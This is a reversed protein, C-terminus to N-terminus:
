QSLLLAGTRWEKDGRKQPCEEENAHAFINKITIGGTTIITKCTGIKFNSNLMNKYSGYFCQKVTGSSGLIQNGDFLISTVTTAKYSGYQAGEGGIFGAVVGILGNKVANKLIKKSSIDEGGNYDVMDSAVSGSASIIGNGVISIVKGANSGMLAGSVSGTAASIIIKDVNINDWGGEAVQETVTGVASIGAGVVAGAIVPGALGGTAVTVAAIAAVAVVATTTAIIAEKHNYIFEGVSNIGEGIDKLSPWMGNLDVLDMPRNWCYNYHNMTYPVAIHGKIFDESVFRGVGADYRRAQAFYLGGASDMQYGTFGFNQLSDKFIDKATRIDNGFEDFGYTEESRGAEDALRMPSGLDDQFYFHERGEEEMGTVNGDWFYTQEVNNETKQLLNHYQRTLDLTYRITQEPAADGAAISQEMRHGLGNYQYVAKKIQGDTMGMSSNMQNAADFGYARLVEEGSTVSLLNGRHDYAYDKTGNANTEQLLQNRTNYRYTTVLGGATQYETKSSRNGFADYSYTRLTQGNQAVSTLRNLADYCYSFSGSDEPLGPREKEAMVKNGMVDYSYHCRETFDAGEHLIEELKGAANYRYDTYNGGPLQKGILRGFEDYSYRITNERMEGSFIKMASMQMAENYEYVTKKGDPYLVATREGMSGWEYGVNKGYPDTVSAIRGAEDMAIKTTGLWDKVEELQKIANYTLSVKRGDAYCIEEVQGNTGYHFTTEYGDKDVKARMKGAPDYTYREIDGLPDTVTTVHGEKDWTYVTNQPEEGNAGTCSTQVLQGMADYQYFTENGLADTVKALNGNPTYEYCTVNGKEDEAKTVRGLADYTFYAVGGAPNEISTIRALCDYSYHYCEGATTTRETLNGRADYRYHEGAGDPYRVSKLRGGKEYEYVTSSGNPYCIREAKGLENYFVSTTAGAADTVSTRRGLDDYTYSTTQGSANTERVLNGERDYEYVTRAGDPELVETLRNVADYFYRTTNGEPDTMETRNGAADYAYKVVGGMPLIQKVLHNDSDYFYKQQGHDPATVSRVNWMKDYTFHVQQGEKDTYTEVKGLPNYIFEATNGDFDRIATIKGGANYTYARQNGMADTVTTVRDAADYTYRTVNRNADVTEIVRNLADYGYTTVNGTVDKLQVINGNEDYGIELVSGDAYTITEPRGAGNNIVTIRNGYLNETGILNGKGDYHNKLREKGNISVSILHCDADYTYNVRRKLADVMQTLNGRNDYAMRTTRGLRDTKSICQNKENYLYHEKTGDEYITETNRYREDHVHIIKSGNRETLTVRRNKDDYAFEMMGGDPFQQHIIRFRRDYTNKVSTVHRANEVETIRGNEGYRYVYEAGSATIVKKLKEEEYQLLVSRGTHDTVKKLQGMQNYCYTLSSGNDTEAKKLKGDECYFFSIGRGNRDEKRLMKGEQDFSINEQGPHVLIYGQETEKLFELATNRAIYEQGKKDHYNIQGDALRVGITGDAEKELAIQYNHLFCRGLVGTRSDKSNYYRHFSLPIEGAVKLDEHEYIFNGTSLNVPDESNMCGEAETGLMKEEITKEVTAKANRINEVDADLVGKMKGMDMNGGNPDITNALDNILKIIDSGCVTQSGTISIYRTDVAQVNSFIEEIQERTTDNKDLIKKHYLDIRDAYRQIDLLGLWSQVNLGIDGFWDKVSNWTGNATVEDVYNLLKQKAADSFDRLM